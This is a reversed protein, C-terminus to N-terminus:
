ESTLTDSAKQKVHSPIRQMCRLRRAPLLRNEQLSLIGCVYEAREKGYYVIIIARTETSSYAQIEAYHTMKEPDVEFRM